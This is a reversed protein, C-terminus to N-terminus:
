VGRISDVAADLREGDLVRDRDGNHCFVRFREDDRITKYREADAKLEDREQALRQIVSTVFNPTYGDRVAHIAETIELAHVPPANM